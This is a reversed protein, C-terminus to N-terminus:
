RRGRGSAASSFSRGRRARARCVYQLAEYQCWSSLMNSVSPYSFEYVIAKTPPPKFLLLLGGSIVFGGLRNLFVLGYSYTFYEGDYPRTLMREQIVGWILFCVNLGVFCTALRSLVEKKSAEEPKFDFDLFALFTSTTQKKLTSRPSLPPQAAAEKAPSAPRAKQAAPPHPEDSLLSDEASAGSAHIPAESDGKPPPRVQTTFALARARFPPLATRARTPPRHLFGRARAAGALARARDLSRPPTARAGRARAALSHSRAPRRSGRHRVVPFLVDPAAAHHPRARRVPAPAFRPPRRPAAATLARRGRPSSESLSAFPFPARVFNTALVFMEQGVDRENPLGTIPVDAAQGRAGLACVALVLWGAAGVM